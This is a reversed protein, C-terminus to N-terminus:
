TIIRMPLGRDDQDGGLIQAAGACWRRASWAVALADLHDDGPPPDLALGPRLWARLAAIRAGRGEPLRKAPLADTRGTMAMFSLEPHVELVRGALEADAGALAEDVALVIGRIGYAQASVGRGDLLRRALVRATAYDPAALVERPPALFVRAAARGLRRKAALDCARWGGQDPQGAPLGIPCDVGVAAARRDAALALVEGFGAADQGPVTHWELRHARTADATVVAVAWGGRRGDGGVVCRLADPGANVNATPNAAGAVLM